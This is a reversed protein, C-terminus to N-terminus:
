LSLDVYLTNRGSGEPDRWREPEIAFVNLNVYQTIRRRSLLENSGDPAYRRVQYGQGVTRVDVTFDYARAIPPLALLAAGCAAATAARRARSHAVGRSARRQSELDGPM